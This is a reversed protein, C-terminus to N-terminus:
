KAMKINANTAERDSLLKVNAPAFGGGKPTILWDYFSKADVSAYRLSPIQPDKYESIGIIVAWRQTVGRSLDGGEQERRVLGSGYSTYRVDSLEIGTQSGTAYLTLVRTGAPIKLVIQKGGAPGWSGPYEKYSGKLDSSVTANEILQFPTTLKNLISLHNPHFDNWLNFTLEGGHDDPLTITTPGFMKWVTYFETRGTSDHLVRPVHLSLGDPKTITQYNACGTLFAVILLFFTGCFFRYLTTM